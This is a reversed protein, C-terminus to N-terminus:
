RQAIWGNEEWFRLLEEFVEENHLVKGKVQEMQSKVSRFRIHQSKTIQITTTEEAESV